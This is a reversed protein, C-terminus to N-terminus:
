VGDFTVNAMQMGNYYIQAITDWEKPIAKLLLMGQQYDSTVCRNAWLHELITWIKQIWVDPNEGTTLRISHALEYDKYIGTFHPIGYRQDLNTWTAASTTGLLTRMNTSLRTCIMSKVQLDIKDWDAMAVLEAQTPQVVNAAVPRQCQGLVYGLLRQDGLYDLMMEKWSRFDQGIFVPIHSSNDKLSM